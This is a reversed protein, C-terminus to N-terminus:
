NRNNYASKVPIQTETTRIASTFNETTGEWTVIFIQHTSVTAACLEVSVDERHFAMYFHGQFQKQLHNRYSGEAVKNM